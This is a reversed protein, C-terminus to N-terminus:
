RKGSRGDFKETVKQTLDMGEDAYLVTMDSKALVLNVKEAKAVDNIIKRVDELAKNTFDADKQRLDNEADKAMKQFVQVKEQFTKQKEQKQAETMTLADKQLSQQLSKLKEEEKRISAQKDKVLKEMDARHQIGTKSEVLVARVDVYGIKIGDAALVPASSLLGAVMWLVFRLKM